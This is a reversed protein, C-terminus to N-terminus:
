AMIDDLTILIVDESREKEELISATFGSKSFLVYWTNRRNKNMVDAKRRLEALVSYDMPKHESQLRITKLLATRDKPWVSSKKFGISRKGYIGYLQRAPDPIIKWISPFSRDFAADCIIENLENERGIFM